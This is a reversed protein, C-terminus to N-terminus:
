KGLGAREARPTWSAAECKEGQGERVLSKGKYPVSGQLPSTLQRNQTGQLWCDGMPCIRQPWGLTGM